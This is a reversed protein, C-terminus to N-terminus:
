AGMSRGTASHCRRPIAGGEGSPSPLVYHQCASARSFPGSLRLAIEEPSAGDQYDWLVTEIGVRTGAIRITDKGTFDFHSELELSEVVQDKTM